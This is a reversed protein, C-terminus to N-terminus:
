QPTWPECTGFYAIFLVDNSRNRRYDIEWQAEGTPSIVVTERAAGTDFRLTESGDAGTRRKINWEGSNKVRIRGNRKNAAIAVPLSVDLQDGTNLVGLRFECIRQEAAQAGGSLALAVAVGAGVM